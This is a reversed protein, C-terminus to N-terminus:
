SKRKGLYATIVAENNRVEEPTGVAILQGHDLVAVTSALEMVFGVNHEILLVSIGRSPLTRIFAALEASEQSNLGSAAEDLLLLEPESALARAIELLRVRGLPLTGAPRDRLDYLRTDKLIVDVRDGAEREAAGSAGINLVQSFLNGRIHRHAGVLVNDRVSMEHCIEPIQFTRGIRRAAVKEPAQGSIREGRLRIEGTAPKIFGTMVNFLTSKGAGNPGIVATISPGEFSFSVNRNAWLGGFRVGIDDIEIKM